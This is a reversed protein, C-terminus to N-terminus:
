RPSQFGCEKYGGTCASWKYYGTAHCTYFGYNTEGPSLRSDSSCSWQGNKKELCMKVYIRQSCNNTAKIQFSDSSGCHNGWEKDLSVCSEADMAFVNMACFLSVTAIIITLKKM